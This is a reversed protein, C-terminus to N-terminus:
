RCLVPQNEHSLYKLEIYGAIGSRLSTDELDLRPPLQIFPKLDLAEHILRGDIAARLRLASGEPFAAENRGILGLWSDLYAGSFPPQRGDLMNGQIRAWVYHWLGPAGTALSFDDTHGVPHGGIFADVDGCLGHAPGPMLGNQALYELGWCIGGLGYAFSADRLRPVNDLVNGLLRDAVMDLEPRKKLSAYHALVAIFGMQGGFLGPNDGNDLSHLVLRNVLDDRRSFKTKM